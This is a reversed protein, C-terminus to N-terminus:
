VDPSAIEVAGTPYPAFSREPAAGRDGFHTALFGDAVLTDFGDCDTAVGWSRLAVAAGSAISGPEAPATLVGAGSGSQADFFGGRNRESTWAEIAAVEDDDLQEPDYFLAVAGHELNHVLAREDIPAPYGGVEVPLTHPLHRGSHPPRQPYLEDATETGAGDLHTRDELPEAGGAGVLETCREELRQEFTTADVTVALDITDLDGPVSGDADAGAIPLSRAAGLGLRAAGLGGVSLVLVGVLAGAVILTGRGTRRPGHGAPPPPPGDATDGWATPTTEDV